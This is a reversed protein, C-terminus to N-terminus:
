LNPKSRTALRDRLRSNHAGLTGPSWGLCNQSLKPVGVQSDRSFYGNPHLRPLADCPSRRIPLSAVAGEIMLSILFTYPLSCAGHFPLRATELSKATFGNPGLPRSLSLNSKRVEIRALLDSPRGPPWAWRPRPRGPSFYSERSPTSGTSISAADKPGSTTSSFAESSTL